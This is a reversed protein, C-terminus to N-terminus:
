KKGRISKECGKCVDDENLEDCIEECDTCVIGELCSECVDGDSTSVIETWDIDVHNDCIVCLTIAM